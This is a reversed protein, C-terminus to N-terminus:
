KGQESPNPEVFLRQDQDLDIRSDWPIIFTLQFSRCGAMSLIFVLRVETCICISSGGLFPGFEDQVDYLRNSVDDRRGEADTDLEVGCVM